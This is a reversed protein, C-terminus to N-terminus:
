ETFPTKINEKLYERIRKIHKFTTSPSIGIDKSVQEITQDTLAYLQYISASAWLETKGLRQITDMVEDYKTQLRMDEEYDYEIDVQEIEEDTVDIKKNRKYLNYYRSQLFSRCYMLNFSDSFYLNKNDKEGLYLYLEGVLEESTTPDKTINFITSYLWRNHKRYLVDLRKQTEKTM